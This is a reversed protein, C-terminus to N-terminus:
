ADETDPKESTEPEINEAPIPMEDATEDEIGDPV